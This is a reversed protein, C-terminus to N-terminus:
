RKEPVPPTPISGNEVKGHCSRCLTVVNDLRHADQPDEFDRVPRIHHVDLRQGNQERTMGCVKCEHGDRKRANARVDLWEGTYSTEGEKWLHHQEGVVNESLWSGLCERTCFRGNGRDLKSQLMTMPKGCQECDKEVREADKTYSDGLFEDSDAVCDPCYVGCKDSPYFEFSSGCRKCDTTEKASQWNGNHEGANADCDDCFKRRSQPDYFWSGCGTCQRNPLSVDHVRSHHIRLGQETEVEKDCTPCEM